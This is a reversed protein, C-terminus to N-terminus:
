ASRFGAEFEDDLTSPPTPARRGAGSPVAAAAARAQRTATVRAANATVRQQDAQSFEQWTKFRTVAALMVSESTTTKVRQAYEGGQTDLWKAFDAGGVVQEWDPEAESLVPLDTAPTDTPAAPTAQKNHEAFYEEMAEVVEPLEARVREVKELRPPAPPTPAPLAKQLAAVRGEASRLKHQLDPIQAAAQKITQFEELMARVKPPLGALEDDEAKEPAQAADDNDGAAGEPAAPSSAPTEPEPTTVNSAGSEFAADLDAETVETTM